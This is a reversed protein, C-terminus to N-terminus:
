TLLDRAHPAFDAFRDFQVIRIDRALQAGLVARISRRHDRDPNVLIATELRSNMAVALRFLSDVHLDTPTFSFGTLCLVRARRLAREANGWLKKLIAREELRKSNEPPVIEYENDGHQKYPRERLRIGADIRTPLPRWNLSGHLKLLNVSGNHAAPPNRASWKEHGSVRAPNPFCYGYQASWRGDAGRRLADDIVCDYNFTIITDKAELASVVGAHFACPHTRAVSMKKTVDASEELVGSLATMMRGRMAKIRQSSFARNAVPLLDGVTQLSELQTMYQELGVRYNSGYVARVDKLVATITEQHKKARVRQLQTFFDENLPPLCIPGQTEVFQAGRTAGAGLVVVRDGPSWQTM